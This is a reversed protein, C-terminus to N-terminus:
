RYLDCSEANIQLPLTSSCVGANDATAGLCFGGSCVEDKACDLGNKTKLTCTGDEPGTCYSDAACPAAASCTESEKPKALCHSVAADCYFADGCEAVPDSCDEGGGVAMPVGCVGQIKGLKVICALGAVSDCDGNSQCVAGDPGEKSFVPLCAVEVSDLEEHTWVGDLLAKNRAEICAEAPEPHYPLKAPNCKGARAAACATTDEALSTADSGYCAKVVSENCETAALKECFSAETPYKFFPKSEETERGGCASLLGILFLGGVAARSM